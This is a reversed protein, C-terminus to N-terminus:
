VGAKLDQQFPNSNSRPSESAFGTEFCSHRLWGAAAPLKPASARCRRLLVVGSLDASNLDNSGALVLWKERSQVM